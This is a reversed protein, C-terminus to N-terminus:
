NCNHSWLMPDLQFLLDLFIKCLSTSLTSIELLYESIRAKNKKLTICFAHLKVTFFVTAALADIIWIIFINIIADLHCDMSKESTSVNLVCVCSDSLHMPSTSSFVACCFVSVKVSYSFSVEFLDLSLESTQISVHMMKYNYGWESIESLAQSTCHPSAQKFDVLICTHISLTKHWFFLCPPNSFGFSQLVVCFLHVHWCNILPM